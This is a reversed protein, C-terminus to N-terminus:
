CVKYEEESYSPMEITKNFKAYPYPKGEDAERRWHSLM